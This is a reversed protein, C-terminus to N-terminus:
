SSITTSETDPLTHERVLPLSWICHGPRTIFEKVLWTGDEIKSSSLFSSESGTAFFFQEYLVDSVSLYLSSVKTESEPDLGPLQASSVTSRSRNTALNEVGFQGGMSTLIM